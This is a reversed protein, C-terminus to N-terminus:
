GKREMVVAQSGMEAYRQEVTKRNYSIVGHNQWPDNFRYSNQNFGVLLLCHEHSKWTYSRNRHVDYIIDGPESKQMDITAWILVPIGHCIYKRCLDQLRYGYLDKIRFSESVAKKLARCIVPAYCGYSHSDRPNGVFADRPDPGYLIGHDLKVPEKDLCRDIFDDATMSFGFHKLLMVASVSECGAPAISSQDIYEVPILIQHM